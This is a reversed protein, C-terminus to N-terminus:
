RDGLPYQGVLTQIVAPYGRGEIVINIWEWFFEDQWAVMGVVDVTAQIPYVRLQIGREPHTNFYREVTAEDVVIAVAAGREVQSWLDAEAAVAELPASPYARHVAREITAHDLHALSVTGRQLDAELDGPTLLASYAARNVVLNLNLRSLPVSQFTTESNGFDRYLKSFGVNVEALSVARRLAEASPFLSLEIRAGLETAIEQAIGLEYGSWSGAQEFVFPYSDRAVIGVRLVGSDQVGVMLNQGNSAVAGIALLALVLPRRLALKSMTSPM